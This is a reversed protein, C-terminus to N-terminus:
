FLTRQSIYFDNPRKMDSRDLGDGCRRCPDGEQGHFALKPKALWYFGIVDAVYHEGCDHVLEDGSIIAM